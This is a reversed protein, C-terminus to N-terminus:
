LLLERNNQESRETENMCSVSLLLGAILIQYKKM